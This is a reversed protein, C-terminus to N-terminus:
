GVNIVNNLTFLIYVFVILNFATGAVVAAPLLPHYFAAKKDSLCWKLARM